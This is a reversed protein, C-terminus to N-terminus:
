ECITKVNWCLRLMEFAEIDAFIGRFRIQPKGSVDDLSRIQEDLEDCLQQALDDVPSLHGPEVLESEEMSNLQVGSRSLLVILSQIRQNIFKFWIEYTGFQKITSLFLLKDSTSEFMSPNM